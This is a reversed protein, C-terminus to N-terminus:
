ILEAYAAPKMLDAVQSDDTLRIKLLWGQTFAQQNVLEPASDVEENIETVEGGLPMYLDSAAKVSEVVGFTEGIELTAGLEPFEVFTIDGLSEQAYDTIGITATGDDHLQIWEHDKTYLYDAPLESM